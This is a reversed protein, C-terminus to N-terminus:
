DHLAEFLSRLRVPDKVGPASEVGSSVDIGYPQVSRVALRVNAANLGGALITARTSAIKRAVDWNATRGTGGHRTSDYTDVLLTVDADFDALNVVGNGRIGIAKIIRRQPGLRAALARCYEPTELGHLQVGDLGVEEATRTVHEPSEDVFVGVKTVAAPVDPTMTRAVEPAVYRPSGPWFVFGVAAAGLASALEADQGRTIGCIKVFLKTV